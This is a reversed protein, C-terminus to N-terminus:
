VNELNGSETCLKVYLVVCDGDLEGDKRYIYVLFFMSKSLNKHNLFLM